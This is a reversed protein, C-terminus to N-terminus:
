VVATYSLGPKFNNPLSSPFELKIPNDFFQVRAEESELKAGTLTETANAQFVLFRFNLRGGLIDDLQEMPITFIASGEIQSYIYHLFYYITQGDVQSIISTDNGDPPGNCTSTNM